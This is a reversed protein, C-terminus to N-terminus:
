LLRVIQRGHLHSHYFSRRLDPRHMKGVLSKGPNLSAVAAILLFILFGGLWGILYALWADSGAAAAPNTAISSGFLFATFM